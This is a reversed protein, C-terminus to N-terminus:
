DIAPTSEVHDSIYMPLGFTRQTDYMVNHGQFGARLGIERVGEELPIDVPVLEIRCSELPFTVRRGVPDSHYQGEIGTLATYIVGAAELDTVGIQVLFIGQVENRQRQESEDVPIGYDSVRVAPCVHQFATPISLQTRQKEGHSSRFESETNLWSLLPSDAQTTEPSTNGNEESRQTLPESPGSTDKTTGTQRAQPEPPPSRRRLVIDIPGPYLRECQLVARATLAKQPKRHMNRTSRGSLIRRRRRRARFGRPREVFQLATGDPFAVLNTRSRAGLEFGAEIVNFGLQEFRERAADVSDVMSVICEISAQAASM